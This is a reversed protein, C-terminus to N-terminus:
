LATAKTLANFPCAKSRVCAVLDAGAAIGSGLTEVADTLEVVGTLKSVGGVVTATL